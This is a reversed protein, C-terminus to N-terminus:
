RIKTATLLLGKKVHNFLERELELHLFFLIPTWNLDIPACHSLPLTSSELGLGRTRAEGTDSGQPGQALCM